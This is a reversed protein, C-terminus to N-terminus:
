YCTDSEILRVRPWVEGIQLGFQWHRTFGRSTTSEASRSQNFHGLLYVPANCKLHLTRWVRLSLQM